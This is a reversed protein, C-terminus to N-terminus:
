NQIILIYTTLYKKYLIFISFYKRQINLYNLNYKNDYSKDIICELVEVADIRYPYVGELDDGGDDGEVIFRVFLLRVVKIKSPEGFSYLSL